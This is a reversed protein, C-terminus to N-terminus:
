DDPALTRWSVNGAGLAVPCMVAGSSLVRRGAGSVVTDGLASHGLGSLHGIEHLAITEVDFKGAEGSAATSWQFLENFFIDTEVLEGTTNDVLFSTAALVSNQSPDNLFGLTTQGDAIGPSSTTYGAFEYSITATPVAQWTAFARAVAAQFDTASVGTTGVNNVYYRVPMQGWKMTVDHGNVTFGFTLYALAPEPAGLALLAVLLGVAVRPIFRTM